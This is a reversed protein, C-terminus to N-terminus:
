KQSLICRKDRRIGPWKDKLEEHSRRYRRHRPFRDWFWKGNTSKMWDWPRIDLGLNAEGSKVKRPFDLSLRPIM